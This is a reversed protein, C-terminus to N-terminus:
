HQVSMAQLCFSSSAHLQTKSCAAAKNSFNIAKQLEEDMIHKTKKTESMVCSLLGANAELAKAKAAEPRKGTKDDQLSPPM